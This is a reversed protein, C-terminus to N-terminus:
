ETTRGAAPGHPQGGEKSDVVISMDRTYSSSMMRGSRTTTPRLPPVLPSVPSDHDVATLGTVRSAGTQAPERGSRLSTPGIGGTYSNKGLLLALILGATSSVLEAVADPWNTILVLVAFAASGIVLPLIATTRSFLSRTGTDFAFGPRAAPPDAEFKRM